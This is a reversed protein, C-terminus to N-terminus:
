RRFFKYVFFLLGLVGFVLFPIILTWNTKKRESIKAAKAKQKEIKARRDAEKAENRLEREREENRNKEARLKLSYSRKLSDNRFKFENREQKLQLRAQKLGYRMAKMEKTNEREHQDDALKAKTEELKYAQERLNHWLRTQQRTLDCPPQITDVQAFIASTRIAFLILILTKM